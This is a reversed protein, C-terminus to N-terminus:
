STHAETAETNDSIESVFCCWSKPKRKTLTNPFPLPFLVSSFTQVSLRLTTMDYILSDKSNSHVKFTM